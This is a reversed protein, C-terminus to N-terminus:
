GPLSGYVEIAKGVQSGSIVPGHAPVICAPSLRRIRDLESKWAVRDIQGVWPAVSRAYTQLAAQWDEEEEPSVHPDDAMRAGFADAAWYISEEEFFVGLTDATDYLPPAVAVARRDGLFLVDGDEVPRCRSPPLEIATSLRAAHVAHILLTARPCTELVHVLNGTHDLDHHSIFVWRVADPEVLGFVDEAWAQRNAKTGTDVLIPERGGLVLSNIQLPRDSEEDHLQRVLFVGGGLEVPKHRFLPPSARM